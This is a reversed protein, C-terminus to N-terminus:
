STFGADMDQGAPTVTWLRHSTLSPVLESLCAVLEAPTGHAALSALLQLASELTGPTFYDPRQVVFLQHCASPVLSEDKGVLQEELKEGPRLGTFLIPVDQEPILGSLRIMDKVLDLIRVPQGMDLLYLEGSGGIAGAQLVLQVAEPITMFYRSVAPHTVTVPGGRRIQEQFIPVVSGRSGLVNGFRVTVYTTQPYVAAMTHGIQECLWKTAGMVSSPNVAKDTSVLVVCEVGHRGCAEAVIHTGLVNNQVAEHVNTEMIPVHKHAAAHFVIEPHHAQFVQEIRPGDAVSGIAISLREQEAPAKSILERYVQHISNEGHGLLVLAAPDLTLIQRCLESGISGGAGTVLVRKGKIFKRIEAMDIHVPPRRLLDEVSIEELKAHQGNLLDTLAPIIRVPVHMKRCAMVYERLEVGSLHGGAILVEDVARQVLLSHLQSLPGLVRVGRIYIGKRQPADDLVGIIERPTGEEQLASLLRAGESGGGLIVVRRPRTDRGLLQLTGVGYNRGLNALRLMVRTGGVLLMSMVWFITLVSFPLTTGDVVRQLLVFACLGVTSAGLVAGLTEISAFRWAYRYLRFAHLVLLYLPLALLLCPLHPRVYNRWILAVPQDDFRLGLSLAMAASLALADASMLILVAFPFGSRLSTRATLRDM